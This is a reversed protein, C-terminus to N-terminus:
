VINEFEAEERLVNITQGVLHRRIGLEQSSSQM